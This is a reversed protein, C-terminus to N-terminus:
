KNKLWAQLDAIANPKLIIKNNKDLLYLTPTAAVYYDKAAKTEWGQTDCFTIFPADKYFNSYELPDTDISIYLIELDKANHLWAYSEKLKPYEEQCNPCWSAGFVVLKYTNPLAYLHNDAFAIDPATNGVAMKRYQEFLNTNKESLQCNSQNLMKQAVYEAAKSQSRKEFYSFLHAATEQQLLSNSALSKLTADISAFTSTNSKEPNGYNELLQFYSELIPVMLGSHHLKSDNFNVSNFRAEAVAIKEPYNGALTIEDVLKRLELYYTAYSKEPFKKSLAALENEQRKIEKAIVKLRQGDYLTKLYNLGSLKSVTEQQMTMGKIIADNEPSNTYKLTTFDQLNDWQIEFNETNLIVNLTPGNEVQLLAIGSYNKPYELVFRGSNDLASSAILTDKFATYGTLKLRNNKLAPFNGVIQYTQAQIALSLFFLLIYLKKLLYSKHM